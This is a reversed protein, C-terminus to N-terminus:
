CPPELATERAPSHWAPHVANRILLKECGGRHDSLVLDYRIQSEGTARSYLLMAGDPSFVPGAESAKSTTVRTQKSGDANMLYIETAYGSCDHSLCSGNRDRDSAFAIQSGDPSWSPSSNCGVGNTLRLSEHTAVSIRYFDCVRTMESAEAERSVVVYRGDPSVSVGIPRAGFDLKETAKMDELSFEILQCREPEDCRTAFISDSSAWQPFMYFSSDDAIMEKGGGDADLVFLRQSSIAGGHGAEATLVALRNGDPSWAPSVDPGAGGDFRATLNVRGTPRAAEVKFVDFDGDQLSVFAISEEAVPGTRSESVDRDANTGGDGCAALVVVVFLPLCTRPLAPPMVVGSKIKPRGVRRRM